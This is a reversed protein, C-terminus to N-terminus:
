CTARASWFAGAGLGAEVDESTQGSLALEFDHVIGAGNLAIASVFGREMLDILVRSLGVKLVHAGLGWILPRRRSRARFIEDRLAHM